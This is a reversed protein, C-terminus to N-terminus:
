RLSNEAQKVLEKLAPCCSKKLYDCMQMMNMQNIDVGDLM